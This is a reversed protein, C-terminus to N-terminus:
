ETKPKWAASRRQAEAIQERTMKKGVIDRNTKAEDDGQAAARDFWFYADFDSKPVGEGNNYMNGLFNQALADGQDAALRYWKVAEAANRSVGEGSDYMLGLNVQAEADGQDAALRYWKEAEANNKPVGDGNYYMNGLNNQALAIGQDAALRYWKAAEANNKAVGAGNRYMSGLNNQALAHGQDAALRYWKVAEAANKPVGEGLRLKDGLRAQAIPDTPNENLSRVENESLKVCSIPGVTQITSVLQGTTDHQLEFESRSIYKCTRTTVENEQNLFVFSAVCSAKGIEKDIGRVLIM